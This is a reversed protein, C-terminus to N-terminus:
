KKLCYRCKIHPKFGHGWSSSDLTEGVSAALRGRSKVKQPDTMSYEMAVTGGATHLCELKKVDEGVSTKQRSLLWGLQHSTIDIGNHNQNANGQHNTIDLM